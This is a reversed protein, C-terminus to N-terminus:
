PNVSLHSLSFRERNEHAKRRIAEVQEEENSAILKELLRAFHAHMAERAAAPKRTKLADLIAQHEGLRARPDEECNSQYAAHVTPANDRVYWLNEIVSTLVANRKERSIIHHFKEDALESVLKGDASERGMELLVSELEALEADTILTAALAAAEGEIMARAETLEYASATANISSSREGSELVYVGSGTKVEVVGVAVM